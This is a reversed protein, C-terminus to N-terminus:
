DIHGFSVQELIGRSKLVPKGEYLEPVFKLNKVVFRCRIGVLPNKLQAMKAAWKTLTVGALLDCNTIDGVWEGNVLKSGQILGVRVFYMPESSPTKQYSQIDSIFGSCTMISDNAFVENQFSKKKAAPKDQEAKQQEGYYPQQQAAGAMDTESLPIEFEPLENNMPKMDKSKSM